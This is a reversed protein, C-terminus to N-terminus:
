VIRVHVNAWHAGCSEVAGARSPLNICTPKIRVRSIRYNVFHQRTYLRINKYINFKMQLMREYFFLSLGPSPEGDWPPRVRERGAAAVDAEAEIGVQEVYALLVQNM